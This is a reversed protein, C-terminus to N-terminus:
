RLSDDAFREHMFYLKWGVILGTLLGVVPFIVSEFDILVLSIGALFGILSSVGLFVYFNDTKKAVVFEMVLAYVISQIGMFILSFVYFFFIMGFFDGINFNSDHKIVSTVFLAVATFMTGFFSPWFIGVLMRNTRTKKM